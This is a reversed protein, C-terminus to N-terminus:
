SIVPPTTTATRTALLARIAVALAAPSDLAEFPVRHNQHEPAAGHPDQATTTRMVGAANIKTSSLWVYFGPGTFTIYGIGIITRTSQIKYQAVPIHLVKATAAFLGRALAHFEDKALAQESEGLTGWRHLLMQLHTV